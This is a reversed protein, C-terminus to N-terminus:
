PEVDDVLVNDHSAGTISGLIIKMTEIFEFGITSGPKMFEEAMNFINRYFTAKKSFRISAM